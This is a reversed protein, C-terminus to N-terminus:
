DVNDDVVSTHFSEGLGFIDCFLQIVLDETEVCSGLKKDTLM